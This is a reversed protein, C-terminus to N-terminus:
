VSQAKLATNLARKDAYRGHRDYCNEKDHRQCLIYPLNIGFIRAIQIVYYTDFSNRSFAMEMAKKEQYGIAEHFGEIFQAESMGMDNILEVVRDFVQRNWTEKSDPPANM